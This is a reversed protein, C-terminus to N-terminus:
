EELFKRCRILLQNREKVRQIIIEEYGQETENLKKYTRKMLSLDAYPLVKKLLYKKIFNSSTFTETGALAIPIIVVLLVNWSGILYSVLSSIGAFILTVIIPWHIIMKLWLSVIGLNNKNREVAGNIIIQTYRSKEEDLLKDKEKLREEKERILKEREQIQENKEQIQEDKEQIQEDKEQIIKERDQIQEEKEKIEWEFEEEMTNTFNAINFNDDDGMTHKLIAESVRDDFYAALSIQSYLSKQKGLQIALERVKNLYTQTPRKAAVANAALYLLSMKEGQITPTWLRCTLRVDTIVPLRNYRWEHIGKTNPHEERFKMVANVLRLNTTVFVSLRSSTGCYERYNGKRLMHTEWIALADNSIVQPEWPLIERMYNELDNYDFGFKIRAADDFSVNPKETIKLEALENAWTSKSLFLSPIKSRLKATYIRMENDKPPYGRSLSNIAQEFAHDVECWTQSYYCINGGANQIMAVLERAAEVAAESSYGLVRLLLKTDFFFNTGKISPLTTDNNQPSTQYLGACLMLGECIKQLYDKYVTTGSLLEEIFRGVFYEDTYMPQKEVNETVANDDELGEIEVNTDALSIAKGEHLFIDYALGNRDLIKILLNRAHEGTWDRNYKNAYQVLLDIITNEIIRYDNRKKDFEETDYKGIRKIQHADYTINGDTKLYSLCNILVNHPIYLGFEGGVSERIETITMSENSNVYICYKIYECFAGYPNDPNQAIQAMAILANQNKMNIVVTFM